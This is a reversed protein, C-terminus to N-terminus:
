HAALQQGESFNPGLMAAFVPCAFKPTSSDVRIQRKEEGIVLILDGDPVIPFTQQRRGRQEGVHHRRRLLNTGIPISLIPVPLKSYLILNHPHYPLHYPSIQASHASSDTGNHVYMSSLQRCKDAVAPLGCSTLKWKASLLPLLHIKRATVARSYESVKCCFSRVGEHSGDYGAFM